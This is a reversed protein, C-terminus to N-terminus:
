PLLSVPYASLIPSAGRWLLIRSFHLLIKLLCHVRLFIHQIEKYSPPHPKLSTVWVGQWFWRPPSRILLPLSRLFAPTSHPFSVRGREWWGLEEANPTLLFWLTILISATKPSKATLRSEAHGQPSWQEESLKVASISAPSRPVVQLLQAQPNGEFYFVHRTVQFFISEYKGLASADREM